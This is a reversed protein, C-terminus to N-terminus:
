KDFVAKTCYKRGCVLVLVLPAAFQQVLWLLDQLALQRGMMWFLLLLFVTLVGQTASVEMYQSLLIDRRRVPFIGLGLAANQHGRGIIPVDTILYYKLCDAGWMLVLTLIYPAYEDKIAPVHLFGYWIFIEAMFFVIDYLILLFGAYVRSNLIERNLRRMKKM